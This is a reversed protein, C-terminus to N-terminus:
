YNVETTIIGCEDLYTLSKELSKGWREVKDEPLTPYVVRIIGAQIIEVACRTCPAFPWTYITCGTLDAKAQIIANPEAHIIREYKEERNNYLSPDDSMKKPFGNFGM